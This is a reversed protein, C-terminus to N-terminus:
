HVPANPPPQYNPGQDSPKASTSGRLSNPRLFYLLVSMLLWGLVFLMLTFESSGSPMGQPGPMEQFCETDTCYGQSNRILSILRQMVHEHSWVCKCPDFGLDAM